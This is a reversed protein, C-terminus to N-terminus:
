QWILPLYARRNLAPVTRAMFLDALPTTEAVTVTVDTARTILSVDGYYREVYRGLSDFFSLRYVGPALGTIQYTGDNDTGIAPLARHWGMRTDWTWVQVQIQALGQGSLDIVRGRLAGGPTLTGNVNTIVADSPVSFESLLRAYDFTTEGDNYAAAYRGTPDYFGVFYWGQMLGYVVYHGAADTTTHIVPRDGSSSNYVEVRISAAPQGNATVTGTIGGNFFIASPVVVNINSTTVGATIAVEASETLVTSNGYYYQFAENQLRGDVKVRYRGSQLFPRRYAGTERDLTASGMEVWAYGDWFYFSVLGDRVPAGSDFTVVGTMTAGADLIADIGGLRLNPTLPLDTASALDLADQYYEFALNGVLAESVQSTYPTFRLRYAGPALGALQYQGAEDTYVSAVPQWPSSATTADMRQQDTAAPRAPPGAAITALATPSLCAHCYARVAVGALPQGAATRVTGSVTAADAHDDLVFDIDRTVQGATVQVPTAREVDSVDDYYELQGLGYARVLYDGPVLGGLTYTIHLPPYLITTAAAQTLPAGSHLAQVFVLDFPEGNAFRAKGTIAGGTILSANINTIIEGPFATIFTAATILTTNSYYEGVYIGTPNSFEVRYFDAPLGHLAYTGDPATTARKEVSSVNVARASVTIDALPTGEETTVRGQVIAQRTMRIDIGTVDMGITVALDDPALFDPNDYFAPAYYDAPDTLRLAYFGSPLPGVVYRGVEDTTAIRDPAYGYRPVAGVIIGALPTNEHGRVVGQITAGRVLTTDLQAVVGGASVGVLTAESRVTAGGYYQDFHRHSLDHYHIYYYGSALETAEYAGAADTVTRQAPTYANRSYVLVEVNALPTGDPATVRGRLRGGPQLQMDARTDAGATVAIDAALQLSVADPYYQPMPYPHSPPHPASVEPDDVALRYLGTSLLVFHYAGNGDTTTTQLATWLEYNRYLRVQLGALPSGNSGRIVGSISGPAEPAAGAHRRPGLLLFVSGALSAALLLLILLHRYQIAVPRSM